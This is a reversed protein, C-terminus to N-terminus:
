SPAISIDCVSSASPTFGSARCSASDIMAVCCASISSIRAMSSCYNWRRSRITVAGIRGNIGGPPILPLTWPFPFPDLRFGHCLECVVSVPGVGRWGSPVVGPAAPVPVGTVPRVTLDEPASEPHAQDERNRDHDEAGHEGVQEAVRQGVGRPGSPDRGDQARDDEDVAAAGEEDAPPVLQAVAPGSHHQEDGHGDADRERRGPHGRESQAPEVEVEPPFQRQQDHDHQEPVPELHPRQARRRAREVGQGRHQGVRGLLHGRVAHHRDREAVEGDAIDGQHPGTRADRGVPRDDVAAGLHVLRHDGTLGAGHGAGDAVGDDGARDGGVTCQAHADGRHPLVGREGADLAHDGVRLGRGGSGLRERVPGGGEEEVEGGEGTDEGEGHPRQEAVEVLGDDTGDRDQDDRARVRQAQGNREDDRDRGLASGAGAYEDLVPQRELPHAAHVDDQEVLGPGESLAPVDDGVDDGGGADGLVVQQGQRGGDFGVALVGDGAGDNRGGSAPGRHRRLVEPGQGSAPHSGHHVPGGHEDATRGDERVQPRVNGGVDLGRGSGPDRAPRRHQVDHAVTSHEPGDRELVRHALLRPLRDVGQVCASHLDGHDGPVRELHGVGDGGVETDVLHERVHQGFVLVRLDGLQLGAPM